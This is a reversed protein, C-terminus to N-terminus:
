EIEVNCIMTVVQKDETVLTCQITAKGKNMATVKGNTSVKVISKDSSVFQVSSKAIKNEVALKFTDGTGLNLNSENLTPLNDEDNGVIVNSTLTYNTDPTKVDCTITAKGTKLGTVVGNKSNVKVVKSDSSSWLYTSNKVQNDLNLDYSTEPQLTLNTATLSPTIINTDTSDDVIPDNVKNSENSQPKPVATITIPYSITDKDNDYVHLVVNVTQEGDKIIYDPNEWTVFKLFYKSSNNDCMYTLYQSIKVGSYFKDLELSNGLVKLEAQHNNYEINIVNYEQARANIPSCILSFLLIIIYKNLKKM